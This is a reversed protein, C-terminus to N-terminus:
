KKKKLYKLNVLHNIQFNNIKHTYSSIFLYKFFNYFNFLKRLISNISYEIFDKHRLNKYFRFYLIFTLVVKNM